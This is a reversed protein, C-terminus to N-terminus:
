AASRAPSRRADSGAGTASPVDTIALGLKVALVQMEVTWGYDLDTMHLRQLATRRIARFPGLDTYRHGWILRILLCAM